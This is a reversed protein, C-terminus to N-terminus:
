CETADQHSKLEKKIVTVKKMGSDISDEAHEIFPKCFNKLCDERWNM